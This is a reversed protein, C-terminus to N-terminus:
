ESLVFTIPQTFRSRVTRGSQKAPTWRPVSKLVRIAEEDCGFGVSKLIQFDQATGDTNVVFQVYVKGGVKYSQAASPYRLNKQLFSGFARPGGPFEAQQEVATFIEDERMKKNSSENKSMKVLKNKNSDSMDNFKTDFENSLLIGLETSIKAEIPEVEESVNAPTLSMDGSFVSNFNITSAGGCDLSQKDESDIDTPVGDGLFLKLNVERDKNLSNVLLRALNPDIKYTITGINDIGRFENWNEDNENPTGFFKSAIKVHTEGVEFAVNFPFNALKTSFDSLYLVRISFSNSQFDYEGLSGRFTVYYNHSQKNSQYKNQNLQNIKNQIFDQKQFENSWTYNGNSETLLYSFFCNLQSLSISKFHHFFLLLETNSMSLEIPMLSIEDYKAVVNVNVLYYEDEDYGGQNKRKVCYAIDESIMEIPFLQLKKSRVVPHKIDNADLFVIGFYFKSDIENNSANIERVINPKTFVPTHSGILQKFDIPLSYASIALFVFVLTFLTNLRKM